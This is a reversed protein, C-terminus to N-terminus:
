VRHDEHYQNVYATLEQKAEEFGRCVVARYGEANLLNIMDRQPPTVVGSETKLEIFLAGYAKTRLLLHLDTTGPRYGMKRLRVGAQAGLNQGGGSFHLLQKYGPYQTDFWEVIACQDLYERYKRTHTNAM